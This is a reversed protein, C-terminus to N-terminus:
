LKGKNRFELRLEEMRKEKEDAIIKKWLAKRDKKRKKNGRIRKPKKKEEKHHVNYPEAIDEYLDIGFYIRDGGNSYRKKKKNSAKFDGCKIHHKSHCKWCWVKIDAITENGLNKYTIHHCGLKKNGVCKECRGRLKIFTSSKKKWVWSKIYVEYNVM